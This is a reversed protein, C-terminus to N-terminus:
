IVGANKFLQSTDSDVINNVIVILLVLLKLKQTIVIIIEVILQVLEVFAICVIGAQVNQVTLVIVTSLSKASM